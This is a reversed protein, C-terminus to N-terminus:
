CLHRFSARLAWPGPTFWAPSPPTAPSDTEGVKETRNLCKPIYSLLSESVSRPWAPSIISPNNLFLPFSQLKGPPTLPFRLGRRQPIKLADATHGSCSVKLNPTSLSAKVSNSLICTYISTTVQCNIRYSKYVM